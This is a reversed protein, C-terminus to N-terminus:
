RIIMIVANDYTIPNISIAYGMLDLEDSKYM